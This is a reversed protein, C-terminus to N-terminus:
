PQKPDRSFYHRGCECKLELLNIGPKIVLILNDDANNKKDGDLRAVLEHEQLPRGLLQEMRYRAYLVPKGATDYTYEHGNTSFWRKGQKGDLREDRDLEFCEKCLGKYFTIKGEEKCRKCLAKAKKAKKLREKEGSLLFDTRALLENIEDM